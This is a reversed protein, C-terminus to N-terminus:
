ADADASLGEPEERIPVVRIFAPHFYRVYRDFANEFYLPARRTAILRRAAEYLEEGIEKRLKLEELVEQVHEDIEEFLNPAYDIDWDEEPFLKTMLLALHQIGTTYETGDTIAKQAQRTEDLRQDVAIELYQLEGQHKKKEVAIEALKLETEANDLRVKNSPSNLPILGRLKVGAWVGALGGFLLSLIIAVIGM